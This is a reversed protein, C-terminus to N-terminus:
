MPQRHTVSQQDHVAYQQLMNIKAVATAHLWYHSKKYQQHSRRKTVSKDLIKGSLYKVLSKRTALHQMDTQELKKQLVAM